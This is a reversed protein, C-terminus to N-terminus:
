FRLPFAPVPPCTDEFRRSIVALIKQLLDEPVPIERFVNGPFFGVVDYVGM